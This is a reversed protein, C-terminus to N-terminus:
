HPVTIGDPIVLDTREGTWRHRCMGAWNDDVIRAEGSARDTVFMTFGAMGGFRNRANVMGTVQVPGQRVDRLTMSDPDCLLDSLRGVHAAANARAVMAIIFMAAVLCIVTAVAGWAMRRARQDATAVSDAM